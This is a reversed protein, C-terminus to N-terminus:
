ARRAVSLSRLRNLAAALELGRFAALDSAPRGTLADLGEERVLEETEAVLEAVTRRGDARSALLALAWGVARTQSPDVIQSVASLDVTYTGFGLTSTGRPTLKVERKGKRPDISRPEPARESRPGFTEGGEPRRDTRFRAAIDRAESTVEVPRYDRMAIVRDAVDFYDGSGGLVLITSVGLEEHLLRVKDIFPTIPEDRDRILEQMHHDRIMFNTASTDEDILLVTAGAELAEIINAAQSTSGSADESSFADTDRGGPLGSIFPTICTKEIRRGDEARISSASPDSVVLERGDGPVHDYVGREVASLLTSKGHYGGGVILTVGTGIGLGSIRGRNPLEVELRLSAPSEFAVAEESAMPRQDIGSRRPLIAGDAVFAVLGLEPLRSRLADADEVVEVQRRLDEEDLAAFFAAEAVIEPVEELLMAEAHHGAIKRGFAPLGAFFRIEVGKEGIFASTRELVEQGPRDIEIIGGKGTGRHGASIRRAAQAFCRTIYDRAAIERSRPGREPAAKPAPPEYTWRPFGATEADVEIHVRSPAAFPDGQVHDICFTFRDFRYCGKIDKYAKYGKGDIRRLTRRLDEATDM